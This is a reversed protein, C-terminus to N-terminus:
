NAPAQCAARDCLLGGMVCAHQATGLCTLGNCPCRACACDSRLPLNGCLAPLAGALARNTVAGVCSPASVIQMAAHLGMQFRLLM